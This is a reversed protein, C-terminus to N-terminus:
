DRPHIAVHTTINTSVANPSALDVIVFKPITAKFNPKEAYDQQTEGHTFPAILPCVTNGPLSCFLATAIPLRFYYKKCFESTPPDFTSHRM